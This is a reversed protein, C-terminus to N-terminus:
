LAEKNLLMEYKLFYKIKTLLFFFVDGKIVGGDLPPMGRQNELRIAM